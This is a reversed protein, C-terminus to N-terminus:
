RRAARWRRQIMAAAVLSLLACASLWALDLPAFADRTGPLLALAPALLSSACLFRVSNKRRDQLSAGAAWALGMALLGLALATARLLAGTDPAARAVLGYLVPLAAASAGTLLAFPVLKGAM